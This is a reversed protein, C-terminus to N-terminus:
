GLPRFPAIDSYSLLCLIDLLTIQSKKYLTIFPRGTSMDSHQFTNNTFQRYILTLLWVDRNVVAM